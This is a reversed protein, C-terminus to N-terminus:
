SAVIEAAKDAVLAEAEKTPVVHVSGVVRVGGPGAGLKLMRVSRTAPTPKVPAAAPAAAKPKASEPSAAPPVSESENKAM